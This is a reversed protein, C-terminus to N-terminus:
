THNQDVRFVTCDLAHRLDPWGQTSADGGTLTHDGGTLTHPWLPARVEMAYAYMIHADYQPYAHVCM